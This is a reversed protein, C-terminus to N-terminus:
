IPHVDDPSPHSNPLPTVQLDRNAPEVGVLSIFGGEEEGMVRWRSGRWRVGQGIEFFTTTVLQGTGQRLDGSDDRM